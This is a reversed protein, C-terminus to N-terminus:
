RAMGSSGALRVKAQGQRRFAHSRLAAVRNLSIRELEATFSTSTTLMKKGRGPGAGRSMKQLLAGLQWRARM